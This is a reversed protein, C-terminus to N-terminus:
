FTDTNGFVHVCACRRVRLSTASARSCEHSNRTADPTSISWSSPPVAPCYGQPAAIDFFSVRRQIHESPGEVVLRRVWPRLHSVRQRQAQACRTRRGARPHLVNHAAPKCAPSRLLVRVLATVHELAHELLRSTSANAPQGDHARTEAHHEYGDLQSAATGDGSTSAQGSFSRTFSCAVDLAAIGSAAFAQYPRLLPAVAASSRAENEPSAGTAGRARDASCGYSTRRWARATAAASRPGLRRLGDLTAKM